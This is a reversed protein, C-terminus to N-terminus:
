RSPLGDKELLALYTKAEEETRFKFQRERYRVVWSSRKRLIEGLVVM